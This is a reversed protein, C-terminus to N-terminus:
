GLECDNKWKLYSVTEEQVDLIEVLFRAYKYQNITTPMTFLLNGIYTTKEPNVEFNIRLAARFATFGDKYLSVITYKGAPLKTAFYVEEGGAIATLSHYRSASMRKLVTDERKRIDLKWETDM